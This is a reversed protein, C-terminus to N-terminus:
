ERFTIVKGLDQKSNSELKFTLMNQSAFETTYQKTSYAEDSYTPILIRHDFPFTAGSFTFVRGQKSSKDPNKAKFHWGWIRLLRDPILNWLRLINESECIVNALTCFLPNFAM